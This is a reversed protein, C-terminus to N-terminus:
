LTCLPFLHESACRPPVAIMLPAFSLALPIDTLAFPQRWTRVPAPRPLFSSVPLRGSLSQNGCRLVSTSSFPKEQFLTVTKSCRALCVLGDDFWPLLPFLVLADFIGVSDIFHRPFFFFPQQISLRTPQHPLRFRSPSFEEAWFLSL